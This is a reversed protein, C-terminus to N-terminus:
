AQLQQLCDLAASKYCHALTPYNYVTNALLDVGAGCNMALLGIHVLESASEGIIHVGLLKRSSRDVLLKMFGREEGIIQGRASESFRARGVVYDAGQDQLERETKGVYSLEPITYIAMPLQGAPEVHDRDFAHNVALRGQEMATSALSPRGALDGIIYIHQRTTQHQANIRVWGHDDAALGAAALDLSDYNPERGLAYLVVDTELKVDSGTELQVQEGQREIGKIRTKMHLQVGMDLLDNELIQQIDEDLYALLHDHSDVLSVAVGLPAFITAFECAIVGGGIITLRRPLRTMKLISTSDLVRERDFPVDAPRRPRSGTALVIVAASLQVAEGSSSHLNVTHADAFGAEGPLLTVGHSMLQNLLMREHRDIVAQKRGVAESLFGSHQQGHVQMADRMGRSSFRSALYAAERLAKSPITGTQLSVGGLYPKREILGVRKGLSAAQLAASQGGPGSGIVLLDYDYETM